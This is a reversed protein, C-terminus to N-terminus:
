DHTITVNKIVTYPTKIKVITFKSVAVNWSYVNGGHASAIPQSIPKDVIMGNGKTATNTINVVLYTLLVGREPLIVRQHYM